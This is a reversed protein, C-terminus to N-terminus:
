LEKSESTPRPTVENTQPNARTARLAAARRQAGAVAASLQLANFPKQLFEFDILEQMSLTSRVYGSCLIIGLNPAVQRAALALDSGSTQPMTLDTLLIDFDYPRKRLDDLAANGDTHTVVSHGLFELLLATTEVLMQEDDVLLIRASYASSIEEPSIRPAVDAQNHPLLVTFCAGQGPESTVYVFGHMEHAITRVVSLGLGSGESPPRTTFFPEFIREQLGAPIGVGTDEVSLAVYSGPTIYESGRPSSSSVEEPAVRITISGHQGALAHSSNTVLNVLVQHLRAASGFVSDNLSDLHTHIVISSPLSARLLQVVEEVIKSLHIRELSSDDNRGFTLLKAVVEKARQSATLIVKASQKLREDHLQREMVEALGMIPTLLNNFDHAVGSALEGIAELKQARLFQAELLKRDEIDRVIATLIRRGGLNLQSISAEIPFRKNGKRLGWVEGLRGMARASQGSMSYNHVLEDHKSRHHEPLLMGLPRGLVEQASYGFIRESAPNFLIIRQEEDISVVGDMVTNIIGELRAQTNALSQSAAKQIENLGSERLAREVAPILRNINKTLVYDSAGAKLCSILVEEDSETSLVIAPTTIRQSHLAELIRLGNGDPLNLATIIADFRRSVIHSHFEAETSIITLGASPLSSTIERRLLAVHESSSEIILIAIPGFM